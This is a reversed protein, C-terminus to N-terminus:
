KLLTDLVRRVKDSNWNVAGSEDVIINGKKDILFTRPITTVDFYAPYNTTSQYVKFAYDYKELFSNVASHSENTVFLFVMKDKYDNYLAQMSPMEAICPPCWTAWFNILVVQGKAEEFDFFTNQMDTLKWDYNPITALATEKISIPKVWAIGKHLVIQIPQRTQPILLLAIALFFLINKFNKKLFSM